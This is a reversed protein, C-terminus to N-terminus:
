AVICPTTFAQIQNLSVPMLTPRISKLFKIPITPLIGDQVIFEVDHGQRAKKVAAITTALTADGNRVVTLISLIPKSDPDRHDWNPSESSPMPRLTDASQSSSLGHEPLPQNDPLVPHSM